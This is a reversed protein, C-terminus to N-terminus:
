SSKVEGRSLACESDTAKVTVPGATDGPAAAPTDKACGTLGALLLTTSVAAARRGMNTIM